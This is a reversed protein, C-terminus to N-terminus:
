ATKGDQDGKLRVVESKPITRFAGAKVAQIKGKACWRHLTMATIGLEKAAERM